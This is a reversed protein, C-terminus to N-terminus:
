FFLDIFSVASYRRTHVSNTQHASRRMIKERIKTITSFIYIQASHVHRKPPSIELTEKEEGKKEGVIQVSNVNGNFIKWVHKRLDYDANNYM